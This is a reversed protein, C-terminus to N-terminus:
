LFWLLPYNSSDFQICSKALPTISSPVFGLYFWNELLFFNYSYKMDHGKKLYKYVQLMGIYIKQSDDM